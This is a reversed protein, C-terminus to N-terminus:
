GIGRLTIVMGTATVANTDGDVCSLCLAVHCLSAWFSIVHSGRDQKHDTTGETQAREGLGVQLRCRNDLGCTRQGCVAHHFDAARDLGDVVAM